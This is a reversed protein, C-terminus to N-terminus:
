GRRRLKVSSQTAPGPPQTEKACQPANGVLDVFHNPFFRLGDSTEDRALMGMQEAEQLMDLALKLPVHRLRMVDIASISTQETALQVLSQAGSQDKGTDIKLARVGGELTIVRLKLGLPVFLDCASKFDSPSVLEASARNKMVLCYADTLTMVGGLKLIPKRLFDSFQRALQERYFRVDGGCSHKTVPAEIGVAAMMNLLENDNANDSKLTVTQHLERALSVLREGHTRLEDLSKFGTSIAATNAKNADQIRRHIGAIGATSAGIKVTQQQQKRQAERAKDIAIKEWLKHQVATCVAQIVRDRDKASQSSRFHIRVGSGVALRAANTLMSKSAEIPPSVKLEALRLALAHQRSADIWAIRHTTVVLVGQKQEGREKDSSLLTINSVQVHELEGDGTELNGADSLKCPKFFEM